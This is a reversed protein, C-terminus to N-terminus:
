LKQWYKTIAVKFEIYVFLIVKIVDTSLGNENSM